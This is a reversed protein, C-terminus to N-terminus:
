ARAAHAQSVLAPVDAMELPKSVVRFAGLDTAGKVVEPSGYATMLIVQTSPFLRRVQSLLTLDNSDPLRLDLLVVDFPIASESLVRVASQGDKAEVAEHGTDTLTEVLSWRILFEDDVVLVRLPPSSKTMDSFDRLRLSTADVHIVEDFQAKTHRVTSSSDLIVGRLGEADEIMPYRAVVGRDAVPSDAAADYLDFPAQSVVTTCLNCLSTNSPDHLSALTALPELRSVRSFKQFISELSADPVGLAYLLQQM